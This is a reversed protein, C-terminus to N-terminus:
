NRTKYIIIVAVIVIGIFAEWSSFIFGTLMMLGLAFVGSVVIQEVSGQGLFVFAIFVLLTIFLGLLGFVQYNKDGDLEEQDYWLVNDGVYLYGKAYYTSNSSNALLYNLQGSDGLLCENSVESRVGQYVREVVLCGKTITSTTDSWTLYSTNTSDILIGAQANQVKSIPALVGEGSSLSISFTTSVLPAGITTASGEDSTVVFYYEPGLLEAWLPTIGAFDTRGMEVIRSGQSDNVFRRFLKVTANSKVDGLNDVIEPYISVVKSADPLYLRLETNSRDTLDYYYSRQYSSDIYYVIEYEQPSLLDLYLIGNTATYNFSSSAGYVEVNVSNNYPLNTSENYFTFNISNTTYLLFEYATYQSSLTLTHNALAFGQADLILTYTGNLAPVQVLGNTTSLTGNTLGTYNITFNNITGATYNVATVNILHSYLGTIPYNNTDKPITSINFLYGLIYSSANVTLTNTANPKLFMKLSGTSTTNTQLGSNTIFNTVTNNGIDYATLNVFAGFVKYTTTSNETPTVSSTYNFYLGAPDYATFNQATTNHFYAIGDSQTLNSTGDTLTVNIGELNANDYVDQIRIYTYPVTVPETPCTNGSYVRINDINGENTFLSVSNYITGGGGTDTYRGLLDGNENYAQFTATDPSGWTVNMVITYWTSANYSGFNAPTDSISRFEGTSYFNIGLDDYYYLAAWVNNNVPANGWLQFTTTGTETATPFSAYNGTGGLSYTSGQFTPSSDEFDCNSGGVCAMGSPTGGPFNTYFLYDSSNTSETAPNCFNDFNEGVASASPLALALLFAILCFYFAQRSFLKLLSSIMM